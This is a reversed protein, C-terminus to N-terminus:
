GSNGCPRTGAKLRMAAEDEANAPAEAAALLLGGSTGRPARREIRATGGAQRAMGYVQSLGLRTGQGVSLGVAPATRPAECRHRNGSLVPTPRFGGSCRSAAACCFGQEAPYAARVPTTAIRRLPGLPPSREGVPRGGTPAAPTRTASRDTSRMTPTRAPAFTGPSLGAQGIARIEGGRRMAAAGQRGRGGGHSGSGPIDSPAPRPLLM